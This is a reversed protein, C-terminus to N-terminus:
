QNREAAQPCPHLTVACKRATEVAESWDRESVCNSLVGILCHPLVDRQNPLLSLRIYEYIEINTM